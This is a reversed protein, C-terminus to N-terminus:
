ADFPVFDPLIQLERKMRSDQLFQKNVGSRPFPLIKVFNEHIELQNLGYNSAKM